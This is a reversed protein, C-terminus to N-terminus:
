WVECVVEGGLQRERAQSDTLLGQSTSIIGLGLGNLVPRISDAGRYVRRGPRSM